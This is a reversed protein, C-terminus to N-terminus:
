QVMRPTHMSQESESQDPAVYTSFVILVYGEDRCVNSKNNFRLSTSFVLRRHAPASRDM